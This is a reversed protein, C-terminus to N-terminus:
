KLLLPLSTNKKIKLLKPMSFESVMDCRELYLQEGVFFTSFVMVVIYFPLAM